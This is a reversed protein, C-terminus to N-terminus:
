RKDKIEELYLGSEYPKNRDKRVVEFPKTGLAAAMESYTSGASGFIHNTRSLAYMEVLGEVIGDRSDGFGIGLDNYLSGLFEDDRMTGRLANGYTAMFIDFSYKNAAEVAKNHLEEEDNGSIVDSLDKVRRIGSDIEGSAFVPIFSLALALAFLLAAIRKVTSM